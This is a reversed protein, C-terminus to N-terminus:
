EEEHEDLNEIKFDFEYQLYTYEGPTKGLAIVGVVMGNKVLVHIMHTNIMYEGGERKIKKGCLRASNM